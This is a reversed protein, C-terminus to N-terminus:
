IKLDQNKLISLAKSLEQAVHYVDSTYLFIFSVSAQSNYTDSANIVIM